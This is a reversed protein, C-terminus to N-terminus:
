QRAGANHTIKIPRLDPWIRTLAKHAAREMAARSTGCRDCIAFSLGNKPDDRAPLALAVAFRGNRLPGPCSGCLMPRRRPARQIGDVVRSVMTFIQSAEANRVLVQALLAPMDTNRVIRIDLLGGSEEHVLQVGEVLGLTATM